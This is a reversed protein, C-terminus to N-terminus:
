QNFRITVFASDVVGVIAVASEVSYDFTFTGNVLLWGNSDSVSCWDNMGSWDNVGSLNVGGWGDSDVRSWNGDSM